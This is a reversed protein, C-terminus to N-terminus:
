EVIRAPFNSKLLNNVVQQAKERSSYVGVQLTYSGGINKVIPVVGIGADQIISKAVEAQRETAYHGVVVRSSAAQHTTPATETTTPAKTVPSEEEKKNNPLQAQEQAKQQEKANQMELEMEGSTKKKQKPLIVKEDLEPSFMNDDDRLDGEDESKLNKLRSDVASSYGGDDDFESFEDNGAIGVDVSPSFIKACGLFILIGVVLVSVFVTLDKYSHKKVKQKYENYSFHMKKEKFKETDSDKLM